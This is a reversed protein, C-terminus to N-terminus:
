RTVSGVTPLGTAFDLTIETEEGRGGLVLKMEDSTGDPYFWVLAPDSKTYDLSNIGLAEVQIGAPLTSSSVMGSGKAAGGQAAFTGTAPHFVVALPQDRFIANARATECADTVDSIAKRMGDKQLVHELSPLGMAAVLGIIAVVIMIEILTFARVPAAALGAAGRRASPARGSFRRANRRPMKM